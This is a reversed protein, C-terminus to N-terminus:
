YQLIAGKQLYPVVHALLILARPTDNGLSVRSLSACWDTATLPVTEEGDSLPESDATSGGPFAGRCDAIAAARAKFLQRKGFGRADPIRDAWVDFM